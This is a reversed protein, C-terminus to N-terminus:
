CTTIIDRHKGESLNVTIIASFKIKPSQLFQKLSHVLLCRNLSDLDWYVTPMTFKRIGIVGRRPSKRQWGVPRTYKNM